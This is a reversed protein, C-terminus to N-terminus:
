SSSEARVQSGCHKQPESKARRALARMMTSMINMLEVEGRRIAEEQHVRNAIDTGDEM